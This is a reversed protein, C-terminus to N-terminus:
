RLGDFRFGTVKGNAVALRELIDPGPAATTIKWIYTAGNASKLVDLYIPTYGSSLRNKLGFQLKSFEFPNVTLQELLSKDAVGELPKVSGTLLSQIVAQSLQEARPDPNTSTKNPPPSPKIPKEAAPATTTSKTASKQPPPTKTATDASAPLQPKVAEALLAKLQEIEAQLAQTPEPNVPPPNRSALNPVLAAGSSIALAVGLVTWCPATSKIGEWDPWATAIARNMRQIHLTAWVLGASATVLAASLFVLGIM